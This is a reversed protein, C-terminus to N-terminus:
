LLQNKINFYTKNKFEIEFEKEFKKYLCMTARADEVQEM